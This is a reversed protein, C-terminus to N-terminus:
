LMGKEYIEKEYQKCCCGFEEQPPLNKEVEIDLELVEAL